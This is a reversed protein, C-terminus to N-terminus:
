ELIRLSVNRVRAVSGSKRRRTVSFLRVRTKFATAQFSVSAYSARMLPQSEGGVSDWAPSKLGGDDM